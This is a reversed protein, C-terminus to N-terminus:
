PCSSAIMKLSKVGLAHVDGKLTAKDRTTDANSSKTETEVKVKGKGHETTDGKIQVHHGVHKDLDHGGILAYQMDGQQSTLMYGGAPNPKLCGSVTIEKGGDVKVKTKTKQTETTTSQASLMVGCLAGICLSSIIKM